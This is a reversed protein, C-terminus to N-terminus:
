RNFKKPRVIRERMAQLLRTVCAAAIRNLRKTTACAAPANCILRRSTQVVIPPAVSAAGKAATASAGASVTRLAADFM